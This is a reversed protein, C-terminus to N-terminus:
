VCLRAAVNYAGVLVGRKRYEWLEARGTNIYWEYVGCHYFVRYRKVQLGAFAAAAKSSASRSNM